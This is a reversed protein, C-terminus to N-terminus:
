NLNTLLIITFARAVNDKEYVNTSAAETIEPDLSTSDILSKKQKLVVHDFLAQWIGLTM